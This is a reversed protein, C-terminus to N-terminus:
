ALGPNSTIGKLFPTELRDVNVEKRDRLHDAVVDWVAPGPSKSGVTAWGAIKYRKNPNILAGDRLRLDSIREGFGNRPACSYSMGGTRVMDGGQQYYPDPTFINDAVGELITKLERGEM